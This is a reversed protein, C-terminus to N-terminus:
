ARKKRGEVIGKNRFESRWVRVVELGAKDFLARWDHETREKGGIAFMLVDQWYSFGDPGPVLDPLVTDAVLLVSDDAMADCVHGLITCAPGDAWDHLIRRLYYVGAGRVPNPTFFDHVMTEIGLTPPLFDPPLSEFAHPLDQLVIRGGTLEPNTTRIEKVDAGHGGGVDCMFVRSGDSAAAARSLPALQSAFPYFGQAPTADWSGTMAIAFDRAKEPSRSVALFWPSGEMDFNWTLPNHTSSRPAELAHTKFYEPFRGIIPTLMDNM